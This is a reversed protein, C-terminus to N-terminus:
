RRTCALGKQDSFAIYFGREHRPKLISILTIRELEHSRFM